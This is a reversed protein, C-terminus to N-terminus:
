KASSFLHGLAVIHVGDSRTYSNEGATIINCSILDSRRRETLRNKLRKFNSVAAQIASEGGLKVEVAAFLKTRM